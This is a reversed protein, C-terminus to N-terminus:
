AIQARAEEQFWARTNALDSIALQARLRHGLMEDLRLMIQLQENVRGKLWGMMEDFAALHRVKQDRIAAVAATRAQEAGQAQHRSLVEIGAYAVVAAGVAIGAGTAVTAAVTGTATGAAATGTATGAAVTGAAAGSSAAGAFGIASAIGNVLGPISDIEGDAADIVLVAAAAKVLGKTLGNMSNITDTGAKLLDPLGSVEEPVASTAVATQMASLYGAAIAPLQRIERRLSQAQMLNLSTTKPPHATVLMGLTALSEASPTSAHEVLAGSAPVPPALALALSDKALGALLEAHTSAFAAGGGAELIAARLRDAARQESKHSALLAWEAVQRGANSWGMEAAIYDAKAAEGAAKAVGGLAKSLGSEYRSRTASVADELERLVDLLTEGDDSLNASTRVARRAENVVIGVMRGLKELDKLQHARTEAGVGGHRGLAALLPGEWETANGSGTCITRGEPVGFRTAATVRLEARREEAMKETKAIAIVPEVGALQQEKLDILITDHHQALLSGDTVLVCASAAVLALRMFAQWSENRDNIEEYGPLLMFGAKSRGGAHRVPVRLVPLELTNGSWARTANGFAAPSVPTGRMGETGVEDTWRYLFGQPATVAEDELVMVPVREGQGNDGALWSDDLGYLERVLTTKGAGQSGAVAIVTHGYILSIMQCARLARHLEPVFEEREEEPLYGTAVNVSNLQRVLTKLYAEPTGLHM